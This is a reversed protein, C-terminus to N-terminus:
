GTERRECNIMLSNILNIRNLIAKNQGTEEDSIIGYRRFCFFGASGFTLARRSVPSPETDGLPAIITMIGRQPITEHRSEAGRRLRM